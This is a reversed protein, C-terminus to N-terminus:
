AGLFPALRRWVDDLTEVVAQAEHAESPASTPNLREVHEVRITNWGLRNPALFDKSPNDAIYWCHEASMSFHAQAAEFARPHPKGYEAGWQYTCFLLDFHDRLGLACIKAEQCVVPGDTILALYAHQRLRTLITGAGEFLTINPAHSRYSEVLEPVLSEPLGFHALAENFITGRTGARLSTLMHSAIGTKKYTDELAKGVHGLGSEAYQVEPYLTDDMDFVILPKSKM